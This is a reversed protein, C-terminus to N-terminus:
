ILNSKQLLRRVIAAVEARTINDKPALTTKSRGSIIGTKVCAAIGSKAYDAASNADTFGALVKSVESDRMGAEMGTIKMARAIMTMAQERTLNDNPGFQGSGYGAILNYEYTIAVADYYWADKPVDNFVDKGTGSRMLGLARVAIAAFEARTIDRDPEYKDEGVGSVVLRSAMDEVAEKAWHNEVDKFTKPSYIVSYVSNTLSNIKAYYKGDIVTIVTPVHSFTGDANMIIGTTIKSPDVGEPIAVLREVYASFKSVEVTKDGRSCTIEFEIPEVVILYNNEKATDEVIRVTDAAPESIKVSVEIDKLEVDEGIQESVADINIQSAPLTYTVQGTRIELVADKNEMNKVTQGNLTGVVVDAGKNVPITVVANNGEQELREEVKKDDVVVTTVTKGGERNTTATAATEKKGNVLIDFGTNAVPASPTPPTSSKDSDRDSDGSSPRYPTASVENSNVSEYVGISARAVFFYTTGNSLGIADYSYVSNSVTEHSAGYLGSETSQYIKYGAAGPVSSWTINVCANGAVASQIAPAPIANVTLNDTEATLSGWTLTVPQGNHDAVTMVTGNAPDATIGEAEFDALGIDETSGDNNTLTVELGTLDLTGGETYVLKDPQAKIVIAEQNEYAGMDVINNAIRLKGVIDTAVGDAAGGAEFPENTGADIAPSGSKLSFDGVDSFMPDDSINGAGTGTYGQILSYTIDAEGEGDIQGNLNDWFISNKITPSIGNQNYMGGGGETGASNGSFTVNTLVPNIDPLWGSDNYMGGGYRGSSNGNFIVNTLVPISNAVNNMGGGDYQASNERFIVNTLVPSSGVNYMGGARNASNKSFIVDTLTPSGNNNSMGGSYGASNESFTVNTLVPSSDYNYMGGGEDGANNGSFTVNTLIPSSDYNCIGGGEGASNESFTVNTLTPSSDCNYIGGGGDGATNGSFIVNTLTPSSNDNYMGSGRKHTNSTHNANGGTVTFGDLEATNDLLLDYDHFIVHYSNDSEDEQTGIDGSLITENDALDRDNLDFDAAEDGAFGGYMAVGNKMQFHKYRDYNEVSAEVIGNVSTPFYTGKAVWIQNGPRAKDLAAQLTSANAWSSGSASGRSSENVYIIPGAAEPRISFYIYENNNGANYPEPSVPDGGIVSRAGVATYDIYDDLEPASFLARTGGIATVTGDLITASSNSYIGFSTPAEGGAATVTGGSIEFSDLASIAVSGGESETTSGGTATLEGGSITISSATIAESNRAEGCTAIVNSSGSISIYSGTGSAIIGWSDWYANGGTGTVMGGTIIISPASIGSSSRGAVGGTATVEGETITISSASIGRSSYDSTGGTVELSGEGYITLNTGQIGCSDYEDAYTSIIRNVTGSQLVLTVGDPLEVAVPASTSFDVGKLTIENSVDDYEAYDAGGLLAIAGAPDTVFDATEITSAAHIALPSISADYVSSAV